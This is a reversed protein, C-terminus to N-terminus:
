RAMVERNSLSQSKNYSNAPFYFNVSGLPRWNTPLEFDVSKLEETQSTDEDIAQQNEESFTKSLTVYQGQQRDYQSWQIVVDGNLNLSAMPSVDPVENSENIQVPLTWENAGIDFKSYFIDDLGNHDSVWFIWIQGNNDSIIEPSTTEGGQSTLISAASWQQNRRLAFKLVSSSSSDSKWIAMMNGSSDGTISPSVNLEASSFVTESVHCATLSLLSVYISTGKQENKESWTLLADNATAINSATILLLATFIKTM